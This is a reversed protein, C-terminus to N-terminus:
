RTNVMEGKYHSAKHHYHSLKYYLGASCQQDYLWSAPLKIDNNSLFHSVLSKQKVLLNFHPLLSLYLSVELNCVFKMLWVSQINNCVICISIKIYKRRKYRRTNGARYFSLLLYKPAIYIYSLILSITFPDFNAASLNTEGTISLSQTRTWYAPRIGWSSISNMLGTLNPQHNHSRSIWMLLTM